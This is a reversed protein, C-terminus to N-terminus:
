FVISKNKALNRASRRSAVVTNSNLHALKKRGVNKNKTKKTVEMRTDPKERHNEKEDSEAKVPETGIQEEAEDTKSFEYSQVSEAVNYAMVLESEVINSKSLDEETHIAEHMNQESFGRFSMHCQTCAYVKKTKNTHDKQHKKLEDNYKFSQDCLSCCYVKHINTFHRKLEAYIPFSENCKSCKHDNMRIHRTKDHQKLSKFECFSKDCKSCTFPKKDSHVLQHKKLNTYQSFSQGCESCPFPKEGTHIKEHRRIHSPHPFFKDCDKCAYPSKIHIKLHINLAKKSSFHRECAVCCLEITGLPEMAVKCYDKHVSTFHKKLKAYIPFSDECKSCKHDNTRDQRKEYVRMNDFVNFSQHRDKYPTFETHMSSDHRKLSKFDSFSKDCEPCAFPKKDLHFLQHKKLNNLQTFSQGCDSCPFPKDGTHIIEHRKLHSPHPFKDCDKCAYPTKKHIKLHVNM